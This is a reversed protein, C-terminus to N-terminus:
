AVFRTRRRRALLYGGAGAAVLLGGLGAILGTPAGTIPLSGGDGGGTGGAQKVTIKATDNGPDLDKVPGDGDFTHLKVTGTQSGARDVRLTFDFTVREGRPITGRASCEYVRAGPKGPKWEDEDPDVCSKSVTVATVGEPLTVMTAINLGRQGSPGIRAPGNNRYGVTLPVTAGVAGTVTAGQAAADGRQDGAVTLTVRTENDVPNTDIQDLARARQAGGASVLTLAADTGRSGLPEAPSYQARFEEWDAPTFWLAFSYHLNPAWADAPITGGFTPDVRVTAGPALSDDFTCAFSSDDLALDTYECNEYRKSPTFGYSGSLYLVLGHVTKTGRNTVTLPVDVRAGPKGDLPLQREAALDVGEGTTVTSRYTATGVGPATVTFALTGRQGAAAGARATVALSLLSSDEGDDTMACTLIEGATTCSGRDDGEEVEAFAAVESRDVRVTYTGFPRDPLSRLSVWKQPGGPAVTVSNAYLTVDEAPAAAVAAGTSVVVFAVPAVLAALGRRVPHPHMAPAEPRPFLVLHPWARM